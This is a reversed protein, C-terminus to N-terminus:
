RLSASGGRQGSASEAADRHLQMALEELEDKSQLLTLWREPIADVGYRAGALAGTVAGTTDADDGFAVAKVVAEEFSSTRLLCWFSAAITHLVYGSTRVDSEVQDAAALVADRVSSEEIGEVAAKLLGEPSGGNALFAIAQNIAVAGWTCRRDAHTIRASDISAQRLREPDNRYRLAVPACRMVSGNGATGSEGAARQVVAGAEDWSLGAELNAMATRTTNGIDKPQSRYWALFHRAVDEMDLNGRGVLSRALAMTMQTDDTVEGPALHLWGGGVFARLGDPFADEIQARSCFEV